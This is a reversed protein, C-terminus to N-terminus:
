SHLDYSELRLAENRTCSKKTMVFRTRLRLYKMRLSWCNLCPNLCPDPVVEEFEAEPLTRGEVLRPSPPIYNKFYAFECLRIFTDIDIESWDVHKAKAERMGGNMLPNISPSLEALASSHVVFEKRETGVTFTFLPSVLHRGLSSEM